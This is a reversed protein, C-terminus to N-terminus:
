ISPCLSFPIEASAALSFEEPFRYSMKILGTSSCIEKKLAPQPPSITEARYEERRRKKKKKSYRYCICTPKRHKTKLNTYLNILVEGTYHM